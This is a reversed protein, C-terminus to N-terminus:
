GYHENLDLWRRRHYTADGLWASLALARNLYLGIDFEDTYGVAGHMQIAERTIKRAAEGARAKARSAQRSRHRTDSTEDMLALAERIGAETIEHALHMDVARHQLAQFAGVPRGFQERTKLFELTLKLAERVVGLLEAAALATADDVAATLAEAVQAGSAVVEAPADSFAIECLYGGDAQRVPELSVGSAQGDARCLALGDPSDAVVLLIDAGEAAAVWAKDGKLATGSFRTETKASPGSPGREQWAIAPFIEGAVIQGLLAHEPCLRELLGVALGAVPGFPEPALVRGFEEAIAGGAVLGLGLGGADEGLMAGLVGAEALQLWVARDVGNRSGRAARGRAHGGARELLKAVSDRLLRLEQEREDRQTESTM